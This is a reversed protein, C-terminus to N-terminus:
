RKPSPPITMPMPDSPIKKLVAALPPPVNSWDYGITLKKGDAFDIEIDSCPLDIYSYCKESPVTALAALDIAAILENWERKKLARQQKRDPLKKPDSSDKLEWIIFSPEVTTLSTCYGEGGCM